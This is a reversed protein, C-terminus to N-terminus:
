KIYLNLSRLQSDICDAMFSASLIRLIFIQFITSQEERVMTFRYLHYCLSLCLILNYALMEITTPWDGLWQFSTVLFLASICWIFLETLCTEKQSFVYDVYPLMVIGGEAFM